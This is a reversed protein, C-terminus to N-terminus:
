IIIIFSEMGCFADNYLFLLSIVFHKRNQFLGSSDFICIPFAELGVHGAWKTKQM